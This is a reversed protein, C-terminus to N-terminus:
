GARREMLRDVSLWGAGVIWITLGALAFVGNRVLHCAGMPGTCFMKIAGFCTCDLDLGRWMLSAIGAIFVAMLLAVVLGAARACWGLVLALGAFLEMYPVVYAVALVAPEPLGLKFGNVSGAFKEIDQLAMPPLGLAAAPGAFDYLGLKMYGAFAMLGGLGLRIPLALPAMARIFPCSTGM